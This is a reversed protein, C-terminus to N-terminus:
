NGSSKQKHKSSFHKNVKQSSNNTIKKPIQPESYQESSDFHSIERAKKEPNKQINDSAGNNLYKIFQKNVGQKNTTKTHQSNYGKKNQYPKQEKDTQDSLRETSPKRNYPAKEISSKAGNRHSFVLSPLIPTVEESRLYIAKPIQNFNYSIEIRHASGLNSENQIRQTFLSTENNQNLHFLKMMKDKEEKDKKGEQTLSNEPSVLKKTFNM